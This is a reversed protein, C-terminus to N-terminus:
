DTEMYTITEMKVKLFPRIFLNPYDEIFKEASEESFFIGLTVETKPWTMYMPMCVKYVNVSEPQDPQKSPPKERKAM